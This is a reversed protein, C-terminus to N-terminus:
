GLIALLYYPWCVDTFSSTLTSFECGLRRPNLSRQSQKNLTRDVYFSFSFYFWLWTVVIFEFQNQEKINELDWQNGVHKCFQFKKGIHICLKSGSSRNKELKAHQAVQWLTSATRVASSISAPRWTTTTSPPPSSFSDRTRFSMSNNGRLTTTWSTTFDYDTMWKIKM